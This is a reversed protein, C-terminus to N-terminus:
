NNGWQKLKEIVFSFTNLEAQTEPSSMAGWEKATKEVRDHEKQFFTVMEDTSKM